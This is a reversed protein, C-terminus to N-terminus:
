LKRTQRGLPSAKDAAKLAARVMEPPIDAYSNYVKGDRIVAFSM